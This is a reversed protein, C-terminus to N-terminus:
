HDIYVGLQKITVFQKNYQVVNFSIFINNQSVVFM